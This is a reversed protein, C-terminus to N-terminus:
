DEDEPGEGDDWENEEPDGKVDEEPEEGNQDEDATEWYAQISDSIIQDGMESLTLGERDAIESLDVFTKKRISIKKYKM